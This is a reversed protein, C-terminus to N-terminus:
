VNSKFSDSGIGANEATANFGGFFIWYRAMHPPIGSLARWADLLEAVEHVTSTWFSEPCVPATAMPQQWSSLVQNWFHGTKDSQSMSM